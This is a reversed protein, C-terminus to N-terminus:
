MESSLLMTSRMGDDVVYVVQDVPNFAPLLIMEAYAPREQSHIIRQLKVGNINAYSLDFVQFSDKRIRLGDILQWMALQTSEEINNTVGITTFRYNRIFM